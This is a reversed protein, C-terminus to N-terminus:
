RSLEVNMQKRCLENLYQSYNDHMKLWALVDADIKTSLAAKKPKFFRNPQASSFDSIEPADSLDIDKDRLNSIYDIQSHYKETFKKANM